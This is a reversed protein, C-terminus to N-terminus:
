CHQASCLNASNELILIIFPLCNLFCCYAILALKRFNNGIVVLSASILADGSNLGRNLLPQSCWKHTIHKNSCIWKLYVASSVTDLTVRVDETCGNVKCKYHVRTTALELLNSTFVLAPHDSMISIESEPEEVILTYEVANM